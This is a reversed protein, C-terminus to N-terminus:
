KKIKDDWIVSRNGGSKIAYVMAEYSEKMIERPSNGKEPYSSIGLSITIQGTIDRFILNEVTFRIQEAVNFATQPPTNPLIAAFVENNYRAPVDTDHNLFGSIMTCIEKLVNNLKEQGYKDKLARHKDLKFFILSLPKESQRAVKLLVAVKRDFYTKTFFGTVEDKAELKKDAKRSKQQMKQRATDALSRLDAMRGSPDKSDGLSLSPTSKDGNRQLRGKKISPKERQMGMLRSISPLKSTGPVNKITDKKRLVRKKLSSEADPSATEKSRNWQKVAPRSKERSPIIRVVEKSLGTIEQKESKGAVETLPPKKPVSDISMSISASRFTLGPLAKSKDSKKADPPPALPVSPKSFLNTDAQPPLVLHQTLPGMNFDMSASKTEKVGSSAILKNRGTSIARDLAMRVKDEVNAAKDADQPFVALGMSLTINPIPATFDVAAALKRIIEGTDRASEEGLGPMIVAFRYDSIRFILDVAQRVNKELIQYVGRLVTNKGEESFRKHIAGLGDPEMMLLCLPKSKLKCNRIEEPLKEKFYLQSYANTITDKIAAQRQFIVDASQGVEIAIKQILERHKLFIRQFKRKENEDSLGQYCLFALGRIEGRNLFPVGVRPGASDLYDRIGPFARLFPIEKKEEEYIFPQGQNYDIWEKVEDWSLNLHMYSKKDINEAHILKLPDGHRQAFYILAKPLRTLGKLHKIVFRSLSAFDRAQSAASLEKEQAKKLQPLILYRRFMYFIVLVLIFGLVYIAYSYIPSRHKAAIEYDKQVSRRFNEDAGQMIAEYHILASRYDKQESYIQAASRHAKWYDNHIERDQQTKWSDDKDMMYLFKLYNELAKENNKRHHYSVGILYHVRKLEPAQERATLLHELGKQFDGSEQYVQGLRLHYNPNNPNIEVAQNLKEIATDYRKIMLYAEGQVALAPAYRPSVTLAADLHRLADDVNRNQLAEEAMRTYERATQADQAHLTQTPSFIGAQITLIVLFLKLFILVVRRATKEKGYPNISRIIATM